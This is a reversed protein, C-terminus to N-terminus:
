GTRFYLLWLRSVENFTCHVYFSIDEGFIDLMNLRSHYVRRARFLFFDTLVVSGGELPNPNIM